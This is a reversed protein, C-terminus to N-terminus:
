KKSNLILGHWFLFSLPTNAGSGVAFFCSPKAVLHWALYYFLLRHTLDDVSWFNALLQLSDNEFLSYILRIFRKALCNEIIQGVAMRGFQAHMVVAAIFGIAEMFAILVMASAVPM